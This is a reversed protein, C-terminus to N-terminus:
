DHGGHELFDALEGDCGLGREGVRSMQDVRRIGLSTEWHRRFHRRVSGHRDQDVGDWVSGHRDGDGVRSRDQQVQGLLVSCEDRADGRRGHLVCVSQLPNEPAAGREASTAALVAAIQNLGDIERGRLQRHLRALVEQLHEFHLQLVLLIPDDSVLECDSIDAHPRPQMVDGCCPVTLLVYVICQMQLM